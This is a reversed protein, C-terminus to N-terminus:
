VIWVQMYAIKHICIEDNSLQFKMVNEDGGLGVQVNKSIKM